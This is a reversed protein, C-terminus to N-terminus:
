TSSGSPWLTSATQWSAGQRASSSESPSRAPNLRGPRGPRSAAAPERRAAQADDRAEPRLAVRRRDSGQVSRYASEVGHDVDKLASVEQLRRETEELTAVLKALRRELLEVQGRDEPATISAAPPTAPIGSADKAPAQELIRRREREVKAVAEAAYAEAARKLEAEVERQNRRKADRDVLAQLQAALQEAEGPEAAALPEPAVEADAPEAEDVVPLPAADVDQGAAERRQRDIRNQLLGYLESHIACEGGRASAVQAGETAVLVLTEFHLEREQAFALGIELSIRQPEPEGELVLERAGAILLQAIVEAAEVPMDPVAVLIRDGELGVLSEEARPLECIRELLAARIREGVGPQEAERRAAGAYGIALLFFPLGEARCLREAEEMRHRLEAVPVGGGPLAESHTDQM